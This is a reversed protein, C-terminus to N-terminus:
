RSEEITMYSKFGTKDIAKGIAVLGVLQPDYDIFVKNLMIATGVDEVGNMKKVQKEIAKACLTFSIDKVAVVLRAKESKKIEEGEIRAPERKTESAKYSM